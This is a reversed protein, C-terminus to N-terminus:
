IMRQKANSLDDVSTELVMPLNYEIAKQCFRKYSNMGDNSSWIHGHGILQHRDKKSAFPVQSDNLHICGLKSIDHDFYTLFEEFCRDVEHSFTLNYNGNAFVHATDICIKLQEPQKCMKCISALEEFSTGLVNKRGVMTELLLYSTKPIQIQNISTVVASLADNRDVGSISSGIHLVVGKQPASLKGLVELEYTLSHIYTQIQADVVTNGKHALANHKVSAALNYIYPAHTFVNIKLQENFTNFLAIDDDFVRSRKATLNSGLFCQFSQCGLSHASQLTNTMKSEYKIHSGLM